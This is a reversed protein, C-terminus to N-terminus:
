IDADFFLLNKFGSLCFYLKGNFYGTLANNFTSIALDVHLFSTCNLYVLRM